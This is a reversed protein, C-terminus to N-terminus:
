DKSIDAHQWAGIAATVIDAVAAMAGTGEDGCALVKSVPSVLQWGWEQLRQLQGATVPHAWMATNMAPAVLMPRRKDHVPWARAVALPLSPTLGLALSALANASAPALLLIHAWQVLQLAREQAQLVCLRRLQLASLHASM